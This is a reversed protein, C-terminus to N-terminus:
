LIVLYYLFPTGRVAQCGCVCFSSQGETHKEPYVLGAGIAQRHRPGTAESALIIWLRLPLNTTVSLVPDFTRPVWSDLDSASACTLAISAELCRAIFHCAVRCRRLRGPQRSVQATTHSGSPSYSRAM